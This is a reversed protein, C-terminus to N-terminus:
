FATLDREGNALKGTRGSKSSRGSRGSRYSRASCGSKYSRDDPDDIFIGDVAVEDDDDNDDQYDTNDGGINMNERDLNHTDGDDVSTSGVAELSYDHQGSMEVEVYNPPQEGDYMIDHLDTAKKSTSTRNSRETKSTQNSRTTHHSSDVNYGNRINQAAYEIYDNNNESKDENGNYECNSNGDNDIMEVGDNGNENEYDYSDVNNGVDNSVDRAASTGFINAFGAEPDPEEPEPPLKLTDFYPLGRKRCFGGIRLRMVKMKDHTSQARIIAEAREAELDNLRRTLNRQNRYDQVIHEYTTLNRIQLLTHFVYLQGLLALAIGNFITFFIWVALPLYISTNPYIFRIREKGEDNGQFFVILLIFHSVFHLIEMLFLSQLTRFFSV